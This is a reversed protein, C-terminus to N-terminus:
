KKSLMMEYVGRALSLMAKDPHEAKMGPILYEKALYDCESNSLEKELNRGTAIFYSHDLYGVVIVLGRDNRGVKYKDYIGRVMAIPDDNAIHGVIAMVSEIGLVDDLKGLVVDISDVTQESM